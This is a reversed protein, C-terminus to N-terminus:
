RWPETHFHEFSYVTYALPRADATFQHQESNFRSVEIEMSQRLPASTLDAFFEIQGQFIKKDKSSKTRLYETSGSRIVFETEEIPLNIRYAISNMGPYPTFEIRQCAGLAWRWKNAPTSEIEAFGATVVDKRNDLILDRGLVQEAIVGLSAPDSRMKGLLTELRPSTGQLAALIKRDGGAQLFKILLKLDREKCILKPPRLKFDILHSLTLEHLRVPLEYKESLERTELFVDHLLNEDVLSHHERFLFERYNDMENNSELYSFHIMLPMKHQGRLEHVLRLLEPMEHYNRRMIIFSFSLKFEAQKEEAYSFVHRINELLTDYKVNIQGTEITERSAGNMSFHLTELANNDILFRINDKNALIGNTFILLKPMGNESLKLAIERWNRYLLFESTESSFTVIHESPALAKEVYAEDMAAGNIIDGNFNGACMICRANCKNILRVQRIPAVYFPKTENSLYDKIITALMELRSLEQDLNKLDFVPNQRLSKAAQNFNEIVASWNEPVEPMLILENMASIEPIQKQLLSHLKESVPIFHRMMHNNLKSTTHNLYCSRCQENPFEGNSIKRRVEQYRESKWVAEVGEKQWDGFSEQNHDCLRTQGDNFLHAEVWPATCYARHSNNTPM